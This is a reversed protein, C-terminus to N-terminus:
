ESDRLPSIVQPRFALAHWIDSSQPVHNRYRKTGNLLFQKKSNENQLKTKLVGSEEQKHIYNKKGLDLSFIDSPYCM